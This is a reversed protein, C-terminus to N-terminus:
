RDGRGPYVQIPFEANMDPWFPIDGHIKLRWEIKNNPAEFTPLTGAPVALAVEGRHLRGFRAESVLESQYFTHHDTYTNTGRRYRASERGEMEVTLKQIRGARGSIQWRLATESGPTLHGDDLILRPRPNFLALLLYFVFGILGLGVLAFPIMFLTPIWEIDGSRWSPLIVGFVFLSVIGNWFAAILVSGVLNGVPSMGAELELSGSSQATARFPAPASDQGMARRPGMQRRGTPTLLWLLGGCGVALFPLPFVGWWLCAGPERNIVSRTPDDPDVYCTTESGPPHVAVIQAKNEYGSSSGISFNYRDGEYSGWETEYSYRMEVRYTTGDSSRNEAVRSSLIVCEKAEWTRAELLGSLPKWTLFYASALGAIAFVGFFGFVLCGGTKAQRVKSRKGM